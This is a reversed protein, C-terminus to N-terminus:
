EGNSRHVSMNLESGETSFEITGSGGTTLVKSGAATWIEVIEPHPHGFQSRRGVSIIAFEPRVAEVFNASSSTRSGHHPVKIVDAELDYLLLMTEASREIDGTFLFKRSGMSLRIVLSRDNERGPPYGSAPPSLIEVVVGAIEFRQGGAVWRIPVRHTDLIGMLMREDDDNGAFPGFWAEGIKFNRAVAQLGQIHDADAHTVVITDIRSYGKEWLFESVVTEGISPIDPEFNDGDDYQRRGGGDILMTHGTPFTVFASDGQGVDLFEVRLRGDPKPASFPHLVIVSGVAVTLVLATIVAKRRAPQRRIAFPDWRYICLCLVVVPAAYIGYLWAEAGGYVPVRFSLWGLDAMQGPFSVMWEHASETLWIFPVALPRAILSCGVAIMAAFSEVAILVGTWLNLVVSVPTVRHFYHVLLPLMAAQVLLSVILGEISYSLWRRFIRGGEVFPSKFLRASWVNRESEFRWMRPNWYLTECLRRVLRPVDAPFPTETTPMWEGIARLTKILPFAALVIAGVSVFTLQFSPSFLDQPRFTLLILGCIGFSNALSGSRHIVYSFWLVTFMLSARVVPVEAGVALTYLWLFTAVLVFQVTRRKTLKGVILAALGGIFTIHLGSIVLIHFTGGERFVNATEADLFRKNGLLSAILVGAVPPSFLERFKSTLAERVGYVRGTIGPGASAQLVQIHVPSRVLGSADLGQWDLVQKRSVVGPNRFGDDRSLECNVQITTGAALGLRAYEDALDPTKAYASIRVTGSAPRPPGMVEVLSVKVKFTFGDPSPDVSGTIEGTIRIPDGSRIVGTEYLKKLREHRVSAEGFGFAAMGALVFAATILPMAVARGAMLAATIGAVASVIAIVVPSFSLHPSVAIGLAFMTALWLM